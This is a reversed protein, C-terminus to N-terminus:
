SSLAFNYVRILRSIKGRGYYSSSIVFLALTRVRRSNCEKVRRSNCEKLLRAKLLRSNRRKKFTTILRQSYRYAIIVFKSYAYVSIGVGIVKGIKYFPIKGIIESSLHCNGPMIFAAGNNNFNNFAAPRVGPRMYRQLHPPVPKGEFQLAQVHAKNGAILFAVACAESLAGVESIQCARSLAATGSTAVASGSLVCSLGYCVKAAQNTTRGYQLGSSVGTVIGAGAIFSNGGIGVTQAGSVVLVRSAHLTAALDEATGIVKVGLEAVLMESGVQIGEKAMDLFLNNLNDVM